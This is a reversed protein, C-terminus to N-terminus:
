HSLGDNNKSHMYTRTHQHTRQHSVPGFRARFKRNCTSSTLIMPILQHGMPIPKANEPSEKLKVSLRKKM